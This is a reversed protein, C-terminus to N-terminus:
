VRLWGTEELEKSWNIEDNNDNISSSILRRLRHGNSTISNICVIGM